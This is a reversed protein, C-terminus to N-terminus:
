DANLNRIDGNTALLFINLVEIRLNELNDVSLNRVYLSNIKHEHIEQVNNVSSIVSTGPNILRTFEVLIREYSRDITITKM